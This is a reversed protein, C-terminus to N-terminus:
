SHGVSFPTKCLFTNFLNIYASYILQITIKKKKDVSLPFDM